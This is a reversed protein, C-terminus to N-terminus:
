WYDTKSVHKCSYKSIYYNKLQFYNYLRHASSYSVNVASVEGGCVNIFTRVLDSVATPSIGWRRCVSAIEESKLVDHPVFLNTGKKLQRRGTKKPTPDQVLDDHYCAEAYEDPDETAETVEINGVKRQKEKNERKEFSQYRKSRRLEVSATVQFDYKNEYVLNATLYDNM